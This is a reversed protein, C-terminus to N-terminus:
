LQRLRSVMQAFSKEEIITGTAWYRILKSFKMGTRLLVDQVAMNENETLCISWQYNRKRNRKRSVLEGDGEITPENEDARREDAKSTESLASSRADNM